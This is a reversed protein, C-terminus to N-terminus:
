RQPAKSSGDTSAKAAPSESISAELPAEGLSPTRGESPDNGLSIAEDLLMIPISERVPYLILGDERLLGAELPATVPSGARNRVAGDEIRRNLRGLLDDEALKVPQKTEPCVLIELLVQDLM